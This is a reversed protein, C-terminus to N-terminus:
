HALVSTVHAAHSRKVPNLSLVNTGLLHILRCKTIKIWISIPPFAALPTTYPMSFFVAGPPGQPFKLTPGQLKKTGTPRLTRFCTRWWSLKKDWKNGMQLNKMKPTSKCCAHRSLDKTGGGLSISSVDHIYAFLSWGKSKKRTGFPYGFVLTFFLVMSEQKWSWIPSFSLKKETDIARRTKSNDRTFFLLTFLWVPIQEKERKEISQNVNFWAHMLKCDWVAKKDRM